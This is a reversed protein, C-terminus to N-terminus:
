KLPIRRKKGGRNILNKFFLCVARLQITVLIGSLLMGPINEMNSAEIIKVFFFFCFLFHTYM